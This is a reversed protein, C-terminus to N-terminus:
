QSVAPVVTRVEMWEILARRRYRISKGCRIFAPGGGGRHRWYELTRKSLNLLDAAQEETLLADAHPNPAVLM